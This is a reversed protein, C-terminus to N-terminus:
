NSWNQTEVWEAENRPYGEIIARLTIEFAEDFCLAIKDMINIVENISKMENIKNTLRKREKIDEEDGFDYCSDVQKIVEKKIEELAIEYKM